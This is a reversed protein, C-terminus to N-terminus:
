RHHRSRTLVVYGVFLFLAMLFIWSLALYGPALVGM